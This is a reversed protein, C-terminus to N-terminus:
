SARRDGHFWPEYDSSVSGLLLASPCGWLVLTTVGGREHQENSGTDQINHSKLSNERKMADRRNKIKLAVNM